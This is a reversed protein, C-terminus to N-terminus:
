MILAAFIYLRRCSYFNPLIKIKSCEKSLKYNGLQIINMIQIANFLFDDKM